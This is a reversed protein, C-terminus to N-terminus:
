DLGAYRFTPGFWPESLGHRAVYARLQDQLEAPGAGGHGSTRVIEEILPSESHLWDLALIDPKSEIPRDIFGASLRDRANVSITVLSGKLEVSKDLGVANIIGDGLVPQLTMLGQGMRVLDSDGDRAVAARVEPPRCGAYDGVAGEALAARAVCGVELMGRMFVIAIAACRDLSPEHTDSAIYFADGGQHAFLRQPVDPYTQNGIAYVMRTLHNLGRLALNDENWLASFGEVDIFIGWRRDVDSM